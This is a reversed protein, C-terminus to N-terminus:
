RKRGEWETYGEFCWCAVGAALLGLPLWVVFAAASVLICGSVPLVYDVLKMLKKVTMRDV